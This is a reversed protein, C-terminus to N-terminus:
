QSPSFLIRKSASLCFQDISKGIPTLNSKCFPTFPSLVVKSVDQVDEPQPYCSPTFVSSIQQAGPARSPTCLNSREAGLPSDESPSKLENEHAKSLEM